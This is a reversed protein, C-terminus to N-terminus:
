QGDKAIFRYEVSTSSPLPSAIAKGLALDVLARDEAHIRARFDDESLALFEAPTDGLIREVVDRVYEYRQQVLDWRYMIDPTANLALRFRRQLEDANRRAALIDTVDRGEPVVKVV